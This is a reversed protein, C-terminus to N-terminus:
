RVFSRATRENNIVYSKTRACRSECALVLGATQPPLLLAVTVTAALASHTRGLLWRQRQQAFFGCVKLFMVLLCRLESSETGTLRDIVKEYLLLVMMVIVDNVCINRMLNM